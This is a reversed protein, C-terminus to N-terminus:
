PSSYVERLVAIRARNERRRCGAQIMPAASGGAYAAAEARCQADVFIKWTQEAADLAKLADPQDRNKLYTSAVQFQAAELSDSVRAQEAYCSNIALQTTAGACPDTTDPAPVQMTPPAPAPEQTLRLTDGAPPAPTAGRTCAGLLLGAWVWGRATM